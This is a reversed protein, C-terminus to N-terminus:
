EPRPRLVVYTPLGHVEFHRLVERAPPREPEEAQYKLKVFGELAARVKPDRFTTREMTLCNKCWSAWFDVFLPKGSVKSAQLAEPLSTLWGGEAAREQAEVLERSQEGGLRNGLLRYGEYAYYLAFALIFIGFAIKVGVMWRGPKPLVAMGAGALPWPLAMGIGLLFPLLLAFVQGQAYLGSSLVLVSIVVPAVCAGALLAAVMGMLFAAAGGSKQALSPSVRDQLRSLDIPLFGLMGLALVVFLIAIGLNFWPSSNLAGFTAGTLASVLGLAGYALAMGLGYAAGRWFGQARSKSHRGAGIIMLNIPILPLVCPTLNLALGGLLIVLVALWLANRAFLSAVFDGQVGTGERASALFELFKGPRMYGFAKGSVEFEGALAQWDEGGGSAVGAGPKEETADSGAERQGGASGLAIEFVKEEPLFCISENCGQWGVTLRFSSRGGGEVAYVMQFSEGYIDKMAESFSDWEKKASPMERPELRIGEEAKVEVSEAYLYHGRPFVFSVTLLAGGDKLGGGPSLSASVVFPSALGQVPFFLVLFLFGWLASFGCFGREWFEGHHGPDRKM